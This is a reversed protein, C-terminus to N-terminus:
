SSRSSLTSRREERASLQAVEERVSLIEHELPSSPVVGATVLRRRLDEVRSTLERVRVGMALPELLAASEDLIDRLTATPLTSPRATYTTAMALWKARMIGDASANAM